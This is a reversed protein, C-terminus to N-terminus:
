SDELEEAVESLRELSVGLGGAVRRMSGWTPDYDGSEIRSLWSASIGAREALARQSLGAKERLQRVAM